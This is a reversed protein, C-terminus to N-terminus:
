NYYQESVYNKIIWCASIESLLHRGGSKHVLLVKLETKERSLPYIVWAPTRISLFMFCEKQPSPLDLYMFCTVVLTLNLGCRFNITPSCLMYPPATRVWLALRKPQTLGSVKTPQAVVLLLNAASCFVFLPWKYSSTYWDASPKERAGFQM